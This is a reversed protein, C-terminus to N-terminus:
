LDEGVGLRRHADRARESAASAAYRQLMQASRWGALRMLDGETGGSSLWLHSFTHRLQHPSIADIDADRCRRKLMQAIGSNTLKGKPGLWLSSLAADKHRRRARLYRDIAKVTKPGIPLARERRGKGVVWLEDRDLDVNELNLGAVEALRAGTNIFVRLIAADRLDEFGRGSCTALLKALDRKPVVPVPREDLKPPRVRAMPSETIEGEDVLWRFLQQLDRFRTAATSPRHRSLLDEIFAEVHERRIAAADTPMGVAELYALLQEAGTTYSTITKPSLNAARLHRRWSPLLARLDGVATAEPAQTYGRETAEV